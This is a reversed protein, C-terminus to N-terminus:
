PAMPVLFDQAFIAGLSCATINAFKFDTSRLLSPMVRLSRMTAMHSTITLWFSGALARIYFFALHGQCMNLATPYAAWQQEACIGMNRIKGRTSEPGNQSLTEKHEHGRTEKLHSM